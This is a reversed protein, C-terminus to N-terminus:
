ELHLHLKMETINENVDHVQIHMHYEGLDTGTPFSLPSETNIDSLDYNTAGGLDKDFDYYMEETEENEVEIIIEEIGDVDEVMGVFNVVDDIAFHEHNSPSTLTIQPMSANEIDFEMVSIEAENGAADTLEVNFHMPGSAADAPVEVEVDESHTKGSFELIKVWEFKEASLRHTHGDDAPHIELRAQSLNSNDSFELNLTVTEGANVTTSSMEHKEVVPNTTDPTPTPDDDDKDCSIVVVSLIIYAGVLSMMRFLNKM